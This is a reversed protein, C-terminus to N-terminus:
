VMKLGVQPQVGRCKFLNAKKANRMLTTPGYEKNQHIYNIIAYNDYEGPYGKCIGMMM